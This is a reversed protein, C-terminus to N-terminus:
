LFLCTFLSHVPISSFNLIVNFGIYHVFLCFKTLCTFKFIISHLKSAKELGTVLGGGLTLEGGGIQLGEWFEKCLNFSGVIINCTPSIILRYNVTNTYTIAHNTGVNPMFVVLSIEFNNYM